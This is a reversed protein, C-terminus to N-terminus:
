RADYCCWLKSTATEHGPNYSTLTLEQQAVYPEYDGLVAGSPGLMAMIDNAMSPQGMAQAFWKASTPMKTLLTLKISATLREM